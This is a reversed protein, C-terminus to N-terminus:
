VHGGVDRHGMIHVTQLAAVPQFGARAWVRQVHVQSAQTSIVVQSCSRRVAAGVVVEMLRPYWGRGQHSPSVGALEVELIDGQVSVTALGVLEGLEVLGLADGREAARRSWEQYGALFLEPAFRPNAAYHTPYDAFASAVFSEAKHADVDIAETRGGHIVPDVDLRWYLLTDAQLIQLHREALQAFWTVRDAPYRVVHVEAGLREVQDTVDSSSSAIDGVPSVVRAVSFGFRASEVASTRATLQTAAISDTWSM